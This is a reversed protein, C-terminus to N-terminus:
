AQGMRSFASAIRGWVSPGNRSGMATVKFAYWDGQYAVVFHRREEVRMPVLYFANSIDITFFEEM